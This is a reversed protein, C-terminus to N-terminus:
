AGKNRPRDLLLWNKVSRITIIDDVIDLLLHPIVGLFLFFRVQDSFWDFLLFSFFLVIGFFLFNHLYMRGIEKRERSRLQIIARGFEKNHFHQRIKKTFETEQMLVVLFHDLDLVIAGLLACVVSLPYIPQKQSLIWLCSIM